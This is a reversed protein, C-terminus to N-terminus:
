DKLLDEATVISQVIDYYSNRAVGIPTILAIQVAKKIETEEIFVNRKNRFEM